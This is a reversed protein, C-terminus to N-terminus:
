CAELSSVAPNYRCDEAIPIQLDNRITECRSDLLGTNGPVDVLSDNRPARHRFLAITPLTSDSITTNSANRLLMGDDKPGSFPRKAYVAWEIQRLPALYQAFADTDRLHQHRGFFKLRGAHHATSLQELFRRRFLRSLVRVPLYFGRRCPIWRQGDCSLEGGPVICHLHRHHTM